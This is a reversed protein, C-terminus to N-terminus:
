GGPGGLRFLVPARYFHVRQGTLLFASGNHIMLKVSSTHPVDVSPWGWSPQSVDSGSGVSATM